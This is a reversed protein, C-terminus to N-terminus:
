DADLQLSTVIGPGLGDSASYSARVQGDRLYNVGGEYWGVWLGGHADDAALASAFDSHGLRSWPIQQVEAGASLRLLGHELNSIWLNGRADEAIARVNGGPVGRTPVFRDGSLTGIGDLTTAWIRGSADQFLSHPARGNLKGDLTASGTPPVTLRGDHWRNLGDRTGLWVSGDRAALVSWAGPSWLGHSKTFAAVAVDHFRDLGGTAGVWVNGERDEFISWVRDGSLGESPELLDTKGEHVHVLAGDLGAWLGRDRDRLLRITELQLLGGPFRCAVETKG